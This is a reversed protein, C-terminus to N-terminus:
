RGTGAEASAEDEGEVPREQWFSPDHHNRCPMPPRGPKVEERIDGCKDGGVMIQTCIWQMPRIGKQQKPTKTKNAAHCCAYGNEKPVLPKHLLPVFVQSTERSTRYVLPQM